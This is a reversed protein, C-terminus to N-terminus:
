CPSNDSFSKSPAQNKPFVICFNDMNDSLFSHSEYGEGYSSHILKKDCEEKENIINRSLLTEM